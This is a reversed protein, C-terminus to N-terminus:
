SETPHEPSSTRPCSSSPTDMVQAGGTLVPRLQKRYVIETVKTSGHGVLRAIEELPVGADSMLSVFSHRLERPTWGGAELGARECISRFMRRVNASGLATGNASCFVLGREDYLGAKQMAAQHQSVVEVAYAPLGLTRRSLRSKTDGGARVSRWVRISPLVPPTADPGGVLDVHDWTLGLGHEAPDGNRAYQWPRGILKEPEVRLVRSPDLIVTLSDVSRIGREV